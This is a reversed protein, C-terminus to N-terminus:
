RPTLSSRPKVTVTIQSPYEYVAGTLSDTTTGIIVGPVIGFIGGGIAAKLLSNNAMVLGVAAGGGFGGVGGGAISQMYKGESKAAFSSDMGWQEDECKIQMDSSSRRVQVTGPTKVSWKGRSNSLECNVGEISNGTSSETSLAILQRGGNSLSACGQLFVTVGISVFLLVQKHDPKRFSAGNLKHNSM